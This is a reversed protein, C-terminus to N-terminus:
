IITKLYELTRAVGSAFDIECQFGTDELLKRHDFYTEDLCIGGNGIAGYQIDSQTATLSRMIEVFEKLPRATGSGIYYSKGPVGKEGILQFARALESIYIFDYTQTCPSLLCSQNKLMKRLITNMFRATPDYVGYGNSIKGWLFPMRCNCAETKAMLFATYKAISYHYTQQPIADDAPLSCQLEDEMISGAGVFRACNLEAALHIADCTHQVNQLQLPYDCRKEGASGEWALHFFVSANKLDHLQNLRDNKKYDSASCSYIKVGQPFPLIPKSNENRVLAYVEYDSEYLQQVLYSGVFGTAGTVIAKKM